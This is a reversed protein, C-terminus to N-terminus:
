QSSNSKRSQASNPRADYIGLKIYHEREKVDELRM